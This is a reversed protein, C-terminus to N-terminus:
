INKMSIHHYSPLGRIGNSLVIYHVSTLTDVYHVSTLTAVYQVSTLTDLCHVSTVTAVYQVSTM